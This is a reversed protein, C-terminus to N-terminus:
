TATAATTTITIELRTSLERLERLQPAKPFTEGAPSLDDFIIGGAGAAIDWTVAGGVSIEVREPDFRSSNAQVIV